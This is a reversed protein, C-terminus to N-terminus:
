GGTKPNYVLEGLIERPIARGIGEVGTLVTDLLKDELFRLSLVNKAIDTGFMIRLILKSSSSDSHICEFIRLAKNNQIRAQIISMDTLNRSAMQLPDLELRMVWPSVCENAKTV